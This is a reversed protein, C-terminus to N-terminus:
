SAEQILVERELGAVKKRGEVQPLRRRGAYVLAPKLGTGVIRQIDITLAALM